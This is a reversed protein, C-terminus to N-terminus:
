SKDFFRLFHEKGPIVEFQIGKDNEYPQFHFKDGYLLEMPIGRPFANCTYYRDGKYHQCLRCLSMKILM